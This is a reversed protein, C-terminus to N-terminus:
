FPVLENGTLIKSNRIEEPLNDFGMGIRSISSLLKMYPIRQLEEMGIQGLRSVVNLKQPDIANNEDLVVEDIHIKLVECLVLSGAGRRRRRIFLKM